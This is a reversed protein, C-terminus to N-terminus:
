GCNEECCAWQDWRPILRRFIKRIKQCLANSIRIDLKMEEGGVFLEVTESVVADLMRNELASVKIEFRFRAEREEEKSLAVAEIDDVGEERRCGEVRKEELVEGPLARTGDLGDGSEALFTPAFSLPFFHEEGITEDGVRIM